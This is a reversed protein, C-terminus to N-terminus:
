KIGLMKILEKLKKFNTNKDCIYFDNKNRYLFVNFDSYVYCGNIDFKSKISNFFKDNGSVILNPKLFKIRKYLFLSLKNSDINDINRINIFKSKGLIKNFRNRELLLDKKKDISLLILKM